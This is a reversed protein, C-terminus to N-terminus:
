SELQVIKSSRFSTSHQLALMNLAVYKFGVYEFSSVNKLKTQDIFFQAEQGICMTEIKTASICLVMKRALDNYATLLIQLGAPAYQVEKIYVALVKTKSKQRRLDFLDGDDYRFRLQISHTHKIDKYALWFLVTAYIGYLTPALKCDQKVGSNYEFPSSFEGDVVLRAHVNTYLKKIIRVFKAPCGLRGIIGYLLDLNM